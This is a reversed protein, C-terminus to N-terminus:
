EPNMSSCYTTHQEMTRLVLSKKKNNNNLLGQTEQRTPKNLLHVFVIKLGRGHNNTSYAEQFLETNAIHGPPESSVYM